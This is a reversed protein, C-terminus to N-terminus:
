KIISSFGRQLSTHGLYICLLLLLLLYIYIYIFLVQALFMSVFGAKEHSVSWELDNLYDENQKNLTRKYFSFDNQIQPQLM